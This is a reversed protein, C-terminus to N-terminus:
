KKTKYLLKNYGDFFNESVIPVVDIVLASSGSIEKIAKKVLETAQIDEIDTDFLVRIGKTKKYKFVQKNQIKINEVAHIIDDKRWVCNVLIM